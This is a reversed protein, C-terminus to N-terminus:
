LHITISKQYIEADEYGNQEIELIAAVHADAIKQQVDEDMMLRCEERNTYFGNETLVAPMGTNRLVYFNRGEPSITRIGRDIWEHTHDISSLTQYIHKQFISALKKASRSELYYWCELGSAEPAAAANGHVSLFIKPLGLDSTKSNAREVREPLFSGVDEEPVINFFQVGTLELRQIIKQVIQRNFKWEELQTGDDWVPSRKGAQLSGHGNDLCWLFRPSMVQVSEGYPPYFSLLTELAVSSTFISRTQVPNSIVVELPLDGADEIIDEGEIVDEGKKQKENLADSQFGSRKNPQEVIKFENEVFSGKDLDEEPPMGLIGEIFKRISDIMNKRNIRLKFM